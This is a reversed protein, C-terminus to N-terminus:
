GGPLMAVRVTITLSGRGAVTGTVRWCGPSSWALESPDFGRDGYAQVDGTSASFDGTPGDLREATVQLAGTQVRWWPYKTVLRDPSSPDHQAPLDGNAPLRVWLVDNGYWDKV